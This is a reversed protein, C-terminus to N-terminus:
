KLIWERREIGRREGVHDSRGESFILKSERINLWTEKEIFSFFLFFSFSLYIYEVFLKSLIPLLIGTDM